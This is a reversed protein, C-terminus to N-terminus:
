NRGATVGGDVPLIAGTIWSAETSALFLIAAAIDGPQGNRGLPHFANFTPLVEKVQEADMFTNYIRDTPGDAFSRLAVNLLNEPPDSRVWGEEQCLTEFQQRTFQYLGKSKLSRAAADFRFESSDHCSILGVVRFRLNVEERLQTLSRQATAIHLGELVKKLEDDSALKLHERWLKRVKGMKSTDTKGVSLKDLRLSYDVASIIEGLPDGDKVSDITVLHYASNQPASKKAQKLRELLSVSEAGIFAPNILDAYGFRGAGTVHFKIQHYDVSIRVPGTSARPPDYRIIVDDFAKPGDAEYSVEIVHSQDPDRLASAHIWFFRAQYDHGHWGASVANAM